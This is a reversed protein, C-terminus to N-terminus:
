ADDDQTTMWRRRDEPVARSVSRGRVILRLCYGGIAAFSVGWASFVFGAHTM